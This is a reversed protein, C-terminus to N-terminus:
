CAGWACIGSWASPMWCVLSWLCLLVRPRGGWGLGEHLGDAEMLESECVAVMWKGAFGGLGKHISPPVDLEINEM